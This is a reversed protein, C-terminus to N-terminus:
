DNSCHLQTQRVATEIGKDGVSIDMVVRDASVTCAGTRCSEIVLRIGEKRSQLSLPSEPGCNPPYLKEQYRIRGEVGLVYAVALEEAQPDALVILRGLRTRAAAGDFTPEPCTSVDNVRVSRAYAGQVQVRFFDLLLDSPESCVGATVIWFGPKLGEVTASEVLTLEVPKKFSRNWHAAQKRLKALSTEAESRATAGALIYMTSPSGEAARTLCPMSVLLIWIIMGPRM